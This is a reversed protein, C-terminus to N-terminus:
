KTYITVDASMGPRLALGHRDSLEIRVPVRQTVKTFNGSANDPPLLSFRAGTGSQISEVFGPLSLGDFTDIEVSVKQGEHVHSLQTEKLNAVVWLEDTGVLALLPRDPGVLQGPEVTRKTVFGDIEARVKTYGLSLEAAHLASEAQAVKARALDVQANAAEIQEPATEASALHGRASLVTGSSSSRNAEATVVRAKAQALAANAQDTTARRADLESQPIAGTDFLRQARGLEVKALDARSIAATVDARAQEILAETSGSVAAAQAVGGRAVTLNADVQKHVLDRQTESAHLAAVAAALDARAADLRVTYDADDLEVMVDGAKVRQNDHVLVRKVEGAVRSSVASVHGEIQADDTEERGRSTIYHHVGFGAGALALVGFVLPAKKRKAAPEDTTTTSPLDVSRLPVATAQSM